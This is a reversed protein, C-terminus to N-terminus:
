EKGVIGQQFEEISGARAALKHWQKLRQVEKETIIAERLEMSVDGLDGLLELISEAIGQVKGICIGQSIGDSVGEAYGEQRVCKMHAEQKYEFISM